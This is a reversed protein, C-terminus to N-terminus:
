VYTRLGQLLIACPGGKTQRGVNISGAPAGSDGTGGPVHHGQGDARGRVCGYASVGQGQPSRPLDLKDKEKVRPACTPLCFMFWTMYPYSDVSHKWSWSWTEHWLPSELWCSSLLWPAPILKYVPPTATWYLLLRKKLWHNIIYASIIM